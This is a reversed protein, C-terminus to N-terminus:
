LGIGALRKALSRMQQKLKEKNNEYPVISIDCDDGFVKRAKSLKADSLGFYQLGEDVCGTRFSNIAELKGSVSPPYDGPEVYTTVPVNLSFAMVSGALCVYCPRVKPETVKCTNPNYEPMLDDADPGEHWKEMNVKYSKSREAKALDKLALLILESPKNPLYCAARHTM